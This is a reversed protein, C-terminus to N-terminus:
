RTMVLSYSATCSTGAACSLPNPASAVRVTGTIRRDSASAEIALRDTGECGEQATTSALSLSHGNLTGQLVGDESQMSVQAGNQTITVDASAGIGNPFGCDNSALTITLTWRGTLDLEEDSDGGCGTAMAFLASVVISFVARSRM